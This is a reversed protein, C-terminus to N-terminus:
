AVRFVASLSEVADWLEDFHAIVRDPEFTEVPLDTYGFNVAVVPIGANKATEIDTKSDGVMIARSPDGGAKAITKLLADGEPKSVSFTDKGCIAKFRGALGLATLLLVSPAEIKNTCVAFSWGAAAFRELAATVGPYLVTEDAIHEEYHALFDAFLQDLRAENVDVDNAKLGRQLLAKAGAGVMARADQFPIAALGERILLANLTSVLDAATDALTGDLDFVLLPRTSLSKTM